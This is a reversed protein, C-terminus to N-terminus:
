NLQKRIMLKSDKINTWHDNIEKLQYYKDKPIMDKKIVYVSEVTITKEDSKNVILSYMGLENEYNCQLTNENILDVPYPFVFRYTFNETYAYPAYYDLTRNIEVSPLNDHSLWSSLPLVIMKEDPNGLINDQTAKYSICYNYPSAQDNRTFGASDLKLHDFNEKLGTELNHRISDKDTRNEHIRVATSIAGSYTTRVSSKLINNEPDVM